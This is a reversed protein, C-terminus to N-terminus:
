GEAMLKMYLLPANNEQKTLIEMYIEEKVDESNRMEMSFIMSNGIVRASKHYGMQAIHFMWFINKIKASTGENHSTVEVTSKLIESFRIPFNIEWCRAELDIIEQIM